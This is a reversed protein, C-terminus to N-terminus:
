EVKLVQGSIRRIGPHDNQERGAGGRGRDDGTSFWVHPELTRKQEGGTDRGVSDAGQLSSTDAGWLVWCLRM